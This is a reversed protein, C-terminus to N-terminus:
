MFHKIDSSVPPAIAPFTGGMLLWQNLRPFTYNSSSFVCPVVDHNWNGFTSHM